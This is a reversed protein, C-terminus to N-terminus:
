GINGQRNLLKRYLEFDAQEKIFTLHEDTLNDRVKTDIEVRDQAAKDWFVRFPPSPTIDLFECIQDILSVDQYLRNYDLIFSELDDGLAQISTMSENWEKVANFGDRWLPWGAKSNQRKREARAEHSSAVAHIDRLLFIIKAKPYASKIADFHLFLNPIKDGIYLCNDFRSAMEEYIPLLKKHHSDDPDYTKCFRTKSFLEPPLRGNLRLRKGYRELGIALQGHSNLFETFVSTGSRSCGCIFLMNKM